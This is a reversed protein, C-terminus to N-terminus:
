PKNGKPTRVQRVRSPTRKPALPLEALAPRVETPIQLSPGRKFDVSLSDITMGSELVLTAHGAGPVIETVRAEVPPQGAFYSTVVDGVNIPLGGRDAATM